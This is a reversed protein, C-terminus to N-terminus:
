WSGAPAFLFDTPVDVDYLYQHAKTDKLCFPEILKLMNQYSELTLICIFTENDQRLIGEDATFLGLILNCNRRVIFDVTSLDLKSKNQIITSQIIDRFKIAEGKNFNYLRVVSEGYENINDLFDLEM